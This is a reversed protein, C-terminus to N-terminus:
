LRAEKEYDRKPFKAWALSDAAWFGRTCIGLKTLILCQVGTPAPPDGAGPYNWKAEGAIYKLDSSM